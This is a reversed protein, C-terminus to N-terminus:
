MSLRRSRSASVEGADQQHLKHSGETKSRITPDMGRVSEVNPEIDSIHTGVSSQRRKTKSSKNTPSNSASDSALGIRFIDKIGKGAWSMRKKAKNPNDTGPKRLRIVVGPPPETLLKQALVNGVTERDSTADKEISNPTLVKKASTQHTTQKGRISRDYEGSSYTYHVVELDSFSIHPGTKKSKPLGFAAPPRRGFPTAPTGKYEKVNAPKKWGYLSSRTQNQPMSRQLLENHTKRDIHKPRERNRKPPPSYSEHAEIRLAQATLEVEAEADSSDDEVSRSKPSVRAISRTQLVTKSKIGVPTGHVNQAIADKQHVIHSLSENTTLQPLPLASAISTM